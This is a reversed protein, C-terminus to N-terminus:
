LETILFTVYPIFKKDLSVYLERSWYEWSKIMKTCQWTDKGRKKIVDLSMLENTINDIKRFLEDDNLKCKFIAEFDEDELIITDMNFEEDKAIKDTLYLLLAKAEEGLTYRITISENQKPTKTVFFTYNNKEM